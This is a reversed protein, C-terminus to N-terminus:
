GPEDDPRFLIEGGWVWPSRPQFRRAKALFSTFRPDNDHATHEAMGPFEAVILYDQVGEEEESGYGVRTMSASLLRGAAHMDNWIPLEEAAFLREFEQADDSRVRVIIANAQPM